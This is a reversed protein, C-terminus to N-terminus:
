GGQLTDHTSTIANSLHSVDEPSNPDGHQISHILSSINNRLQGAKNADDPPLSGYSSGSVPGISM